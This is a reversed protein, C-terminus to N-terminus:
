LGLRRRQGSWELPLRAPITAFTLGAPQHGKLMMEVLAPSLFASNLVRSAYREDTKELKAIQRVGVVEGCVLKEYWGRARAIAKVLSPVTRSSTQDHPSSEPLILRVEGGCRRLHANTTIRLLDQPRGVRGGSQPGGPSVRGLLAERLAHKNIVIEVTKERVVVRSLVARLFGRIEAPAEQDWRQVRSQAAALLAKAASSDRRALARGRVLEQPAGLLSRLRASVLAEIDHAPLRLPVGQSGPIGKIAAQSVYYRYRRGNKVAHSPTFRNGQSDYIIGALLSPYRARLGNRHAQDNARLQAEVKDWLKRPVIGEHEGIYSQGRHWVEGLYIPNELINYLAGRSYPTGGTRKGAPNLRVKTRVERRDLDVKLKSVCGLQLYRRYIERVCAAEQPKVVLRRKKVEYGLPVRGGMWMGKRKSAAIKDRIREGTVEREFQAFSLLVNLTLRGMSTTTNFQQTVSVFSVKHADFIEIIKAFDALSRTLRDVKYVVVTSVKGAGVDELLRRLAPREMTAGSYGGDDYRTKLARWGEHRQSVVYAECAERQADLSNFAQELGEESSKRTYIACLAPPRHEAVM